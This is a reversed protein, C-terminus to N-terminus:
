HCMLNGLWIPLQLNQLYPQFVSYLLNTSLVHDTGVLIIPFRDKKPISVCALCFAMITAVGGCINATIGMARVAKWTGDFFYDIYV